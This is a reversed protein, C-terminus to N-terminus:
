GKIIDLGDYKREERIGELENKVETLTIAM